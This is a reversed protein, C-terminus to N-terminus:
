KGAVCEIFYQFIRLTEENGGKTMAEPHFQLAIIKRAPDEIAEVMGDAARATVTFGQALRDIAQHHFSNVVTKNTGLIKALTSGAKIYITHSGWKGARSQRHQIYPKGYTSPIDQYLTGGFAINIGQLGRCIGLIPKGLEVAIKIMALDFSDREPIVEGLMQAPEQGFLLPDYDEGGTMIVADVAAVQARLLEMDDTIPIVMPIGGAKAVSETYSKPVRVDNESWAASVGIIPRKTQAASALSVFLLSLLFLRKM